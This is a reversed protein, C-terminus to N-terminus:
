GIWVAALVGVIICLAYARIPVPGIHWVGQGPSPIFQLIV